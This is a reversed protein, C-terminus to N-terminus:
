PSVLTVTTKSVVVEYFRADRHSCSMDIRKTKLLAVFMGMYQLADPSSLTTEPAIEPMSVALPTTLPLGDCDHVALRLDTQGEAVKYPGINALLEVVKKLIRM